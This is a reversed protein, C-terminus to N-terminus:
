SRVFYHVFDGYLKVLPFLFFQSFVSGYLAYYTQQYVLQNPSALQIMSESPTILEM